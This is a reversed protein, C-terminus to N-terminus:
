PMVEVYEYDECDMILKRVPLTVQDFWAQPNRKDIERGMFRIPECIQGVVDTRYQM